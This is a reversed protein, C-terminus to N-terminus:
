ALQSVINVSMITDALKVFFTQHLSGAWRMTMEFLHEFTIFVGIVHTIM